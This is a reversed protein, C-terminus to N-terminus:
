DGGGVERVMQSECIEVLVARECFQLETKTPSTPTIQLASIDVVLSEYLGGSPTFRVAHIMSTYM